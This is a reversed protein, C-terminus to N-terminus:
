PFIVMRMGVSVWTHLAPDDIDGSFTVINNITTREHSYRGVSILAFPGLGFGRKFRFDLGGSLRAFDIGRAASTEDYRGTDSIHQSATTVGAGYGVWANMSETPMFSYRAELGAHVTVSSCSVDDEIDNGSECHRETILDSGEAGVGVNLYAGVYLEDIVKAGLGIEFPVWQWGYRASLADSRRGTAAGFPFALATLAVIHM